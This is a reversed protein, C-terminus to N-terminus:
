IVLYITTAVPFHNYQIGNGIEVDYKVTYKFYITSKENQIYINLDEYFPHFLLYYM